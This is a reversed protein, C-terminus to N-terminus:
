PCYQSCHFARIGSGDAQENRLAKEMREGIDSLQEEMQREWKRRSLRDRLRQYLEPQHNQNRM